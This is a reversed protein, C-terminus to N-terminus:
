ESSWVCLSGTPKFGLQKMAALESGREYGVIPLDPALQRIAAVCGIRLADADVPPLFLNSYGLADSSRQVVCGAIIKEDRYAALISTEPVTLFKPTFLSSRPDGDSWRCEWETLNGETKVPRWCVDVLDANANAQSPPLYIWEAEFLPRFGLPNLDLSHFSDKITLPKDIKAVLRTICDLQSRAGAADTLTVANPYFRPAKHDAFWLDNLFRGPFGHASCSIAGNPM